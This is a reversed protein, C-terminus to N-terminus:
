KDQGRMVTPAAQQGCRSLLHAIMYQELSADRGQPIWGKTIQQGTIPNIIGVLSSDYRFTAAGATAHEPKVFTRSNRSCPSM